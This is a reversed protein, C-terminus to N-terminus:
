RGSSARDIMKDRLNPDGPKLLDDRINSTRSSPRDTAATSSDGQSPVVTYTGGDAALERSGRPCEHDVYVTSDGIRCKRVGAIRKPPKVAPKAPSSAAPAETVASEAESLPRVQVPEATRGTLYRMTATDRYRWGVLALVVVLISALIAKNPM